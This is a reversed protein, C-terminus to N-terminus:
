WITEKINILGIQYNKDCNLCKFMLLDDESNTYGLYCEWDKYKNNDHRYKCKNKHIEESLQEAINSLLSSIM